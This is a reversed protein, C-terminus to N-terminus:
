SNWDARSKMASLMEVFGLTIKCICSAIIVKRKGTSRALTLYGEIFKVGSDVILTLSYSLLNKHRFIM